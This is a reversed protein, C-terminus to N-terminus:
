RHSGSVHLYREPRRDRFLGWERRQSELAALDFQQLIIDRKDRSAEKLLAGTHDTIFSSGYFTLETSQHPTQLYETGIRNSSVVPMLNAAAHGQMTRQWHGKSDVTSDEPESGIATPYFLVEAGQLAMSRAAEPFWQDWCIAVGLRGFATDWVKFGTDGPTFYYKEQYGPGCPIHTKRYNEGVRGDADIVVLSNYYNNVDREFYSVPLVVGLEKALASFHKVVHSTALPEAMALHESSEVSCFYLSAFLEQLLIIQAGQQAAERVLREANRINESNDTSCAMQTAAITVQRTM